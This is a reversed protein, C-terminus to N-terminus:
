HGVVMVYDFTAPAGNAGIGIFSGGSQISGFGAASVDARTCKEAGNVRQEKITYPAGELFESSATIGNTPSSGDITNVYAFARVGVTADYKNACAGGSSGSTPDVHDVTGAYYLNGGGSDITMKTTITLQAADPASWAYGTFMNGPAIHMAGANISDNGDGFHTAGAGPTDNFAEFLFIRDHNSPDDTPDCANGVGDGDHDLDDQASPGIPCPDCADGKFDGDEDGQGPNMLGLCNDIADDIGDDDADVGSLAVDGPADIPSESCAITAGNARCMGGLCTLGGPCGLADTCALECDRFTHENYCGVLFLLFALKRM